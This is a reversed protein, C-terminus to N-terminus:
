YGLTCDVYDAVSRRRHQELQDDQRQLDLYLARKGFALTTPSLTYSPSQAVVTYSVTKSEVNGARDTATVTFSKNGITATPIRNGVAVTGVCSQIHADSCSYSAFVDSNQLYSAGSAPRTIIVTPATLDLLFTASKEIPPHLADGVVTVRVPYSGQQTGAPATVTMAVNVTSGPPVTPSSSSLSASWGTPVSATLPWARSECRAGDINTLTLTYAAPRQFSTQPANPHLSAPRWAAARSGARTAAM